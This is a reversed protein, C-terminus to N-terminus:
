LIEYGENWNHKALCGEKKQITTFSDRAEAPWPYYEELWPFSHVNLFVDTPAATKRAEFTLLNAGNPNVRYAHAGPFYPKSTLRNVGLNSPTNFKGYSPKGLNICKSYAITDPIPSTIYADHEFITIEEYISASKVWLFYHSLFAAISYEENSYKSNLFRTVPLGNEKTYELINCNSPTTAPFMEIEMGCAKGSLICRRAAQVSKPNEMITIVYNKM